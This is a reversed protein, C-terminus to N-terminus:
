AGTSLSPAPPRMIVAPDVGRELLRERSIRHSGANYVRQVAISPESPASVFHYTTEKPNEKPDFEAVWPKM